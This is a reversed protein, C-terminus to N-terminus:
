PGTVPTCHVPPACPPVPVGATAAGPVVVVGSVIKRIVNKKM